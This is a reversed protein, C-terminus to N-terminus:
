KNGYYKVAVISLKKDNYYFESNVYVPIAIVTDCKCRILMQVVEIVLVCGTNEIDWLKGILNMEKEIVVRKEIGTDLSLILISVSKIRKM